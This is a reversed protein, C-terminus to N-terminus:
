QPACIPEKPHRASQRRQFTLPHARKFAVAHPDFVTSSSGNVCYSDSPVPGKSPTESPTIQRSAIRNPFQKHASLPSDAAFVCRASGDAATPRVTTSLSSLRLLLLSLTASLLSVSLLLLSLIKDQADLTRGPVIRASAQPLMIFIRRSIPRSGFVVVSLIFDATPMESLPTCLINTESLFIPSTELTSASKPPCQSSTPKSGHFTTDIGAM